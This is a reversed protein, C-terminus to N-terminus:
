CTKASRCAAISQAAPVVAGGDKIWGKIGTKVNYVTTYGAQESLFRSTAKSRNGSRCIIIIPQNPKAIPAVKTMWAAPEARGEENFFTFLKSGGIIGSEEWEPQTRVDVLPTGDKLLKELQATDIDIVEAHAFLSILAFTCALILHRM